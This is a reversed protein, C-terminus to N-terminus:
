NSLMAGKLPYAPNEKSIAQFATLPPRARKEPFAARGRLFLGPRLVPL